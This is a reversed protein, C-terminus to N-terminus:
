DHLEVRKSASSRRDDGAVVAELEPLLAQPPEDLVVGWQRVQAATVMWSQHRLHLLFAAMIATVPTVPSVRPLSPVKSSEASSCAGLGSLESALDMSCGHVM